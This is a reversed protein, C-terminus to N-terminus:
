EVSKARRRLEEELEKRVKQLDEIKQTLYENSRNAKKLGDLLERNKGNLRELEKNKSDLAEEIKQLAEKGARLEERIKEAEGAEDKIKEIENKYQQSLSDKLEREQRALAEQAEKEIKKLNEGLDKRERELREKDSLLVELSREVERKEQSIKELEQGLASWRSIDRGRMKKYFNGEGEWATAGNRVIERLLYSHYIFVGIAIALVLLALVSPLDRGKPRDGEIIPPKAIGKEM